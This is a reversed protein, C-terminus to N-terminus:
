EDTNIVILFFFKSNLQTLSSTSTHDPIVNKYEGMRGCNKQTIWSNSCYTEFFSPYSSNVLDPFSSKSDSSIRSM